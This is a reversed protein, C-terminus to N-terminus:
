SRGECGSSCTRARPTLDGRGSEVALIIQSRRQARHQRLVGHFMVLCVSKQRQGDLLDRIHQDDRADHAPSAFGSLGTRVRRLILHWLSFLPYDDPNRAPLQPVRMEQHKGYAARRGRGYRGIQQRIVRWLVSAASASRQGCHSMRSRRGRGGLPPMGRSAVLDSLGGDEASAAPRDSRRECIAM